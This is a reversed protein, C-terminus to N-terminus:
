VMAYTIDLPIRYDDVARVGATNEALILSAKREQESLYGGWFAVVGNSVIVDTEGTSPWSECRLAGLIERKISADDHLSAARPMSKRACALARVLNARGVVGVVRGGGVVFVRTRNGGLLAAIEEIPANEPVTTVQRTMFDTVHLSHSKVYAAALAENNGFLRFWWSRAPRATGIEARHILDEESVVGLLVGQDIVAVASMGRTVLLDCVEDLTSDPGLAVVPSTMIDKAALARAADPLRVGPWQFGQDGGRESRDMM